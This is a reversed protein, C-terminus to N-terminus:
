PFEIKSFGPEIYPAVRGPKVFFSESPTKLAVPEKRSAVLSKLASYQM